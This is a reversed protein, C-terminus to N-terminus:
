QRPVQEAQLKQVARQAEDFDASLRRAQDTAKRAEVTQGDQELAGALLLYGVDSPQLEAARGLAKIATSLDDNRHAMLGLETWAAANGPAVQVAAGFYQQAQIPEGIDRYAKGLQEMVIFRLNLDPIGRAREYHEIAAPLNGRQQERVGINLNSIPDNPYYSVARYFHAIADDIKGQAALAKGLNNEALFNGETVQTAHSWLSVNSSWYDLQIRTLVALVLLVVVSAVALWAPSLHHDRVWEAVGWCIMLFLGIFPLYAYRDAMGQRGLYGIGEVGIMPVMTGLFWFWGVLLYRRRRHWVIWITVVLLFFAAGAADWARISYGPHPYFVALDAPWCLRRLYRLYSIAGNELRILYPYWVKDAGARQSAITMYASGMALPLLPLKEMVLWSGSRAPPSEAVSVGASAGPDDAFVRRLPWYDWLLLVFPLTIVQPKSLLGLAYLLAVVAYRWVGPRLTYWRYAGLALLFFLLSLSTKREAIWAVAEVNIPHLAFLAAVMFSRGAFGTASLLVWFLLLGNAAHLLLNVEHQPGPNRQFLQWDLAHSLWTLPHWTGYDFSTFAWRVTDANLGGQVNSNATVYITDDYNLFPHHRVPYYLAMTGALLVFAFLMPNPRFRAERAPSITM